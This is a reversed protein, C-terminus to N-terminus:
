SRRNIANLDGGKRAVRARGQVANANKDLRRLRRERALRQARNNKHEEYFHQLALILKADNVDTLDKNNGLFEKDIANQIIQGLRQDSFQKKLDKILECFRQTEAM